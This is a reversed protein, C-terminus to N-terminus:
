IRFSPSGWPSASKRRGTSIVSEVMTQLSPPLPPFTPQIDPAKGIRPTRPVKEDKREFFLLLGSLSVKHKCRAAQMTRPVDLLHAFSKESPYPGWLMIPVGSCLSFCRSGGEGSGAGRGGVLSGVQEQGRSMLVQVWAPRNKLWGCGTVMEREHKFM